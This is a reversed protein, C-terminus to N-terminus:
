FYPHLILSREFYGRPRPQNNHDIWSDEEEAIKHCLKEIKRLCIKWAELLSSRSRIDDNGKGSILLWVFIINYNYTDGIGFEHQVTSCKKARQLFYILILKEQEKSTLLFWWFDLSFVSITFLCILFCNFNQQTLFIPVWSIVSWSFCFTMSNSSNIIRLYHASVPGLKSSVLGLLANRIM